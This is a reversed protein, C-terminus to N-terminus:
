SKAGKPAPPKPMAHAEAVKIDARAKEEQVNWAAQSQQKSAELQAEASLKERMGQQKLQELQVAGLAKAQEAALKPDPPPPQPNAAQQAQQQKLQKIAKDIIGEAENGFGNFRAMVLGLLELLAPGSGPVAEVLPAAATLFQSVGAVFETAESRQAAGYTAHAGGKGGRAGGRTM